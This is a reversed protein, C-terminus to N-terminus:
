PIEQVLNNKLIEEPPKRWPDAQNNDGCSVKVMMSLKKLDMINQVIHNESPTLPFLLETNYGTMKRIPIVYTM